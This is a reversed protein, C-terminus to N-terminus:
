TQKQEIECTLYANLGGLEDRVSSWDYKASNESVKRMVREYFMKLMLKDLMAM